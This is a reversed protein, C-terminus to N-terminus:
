IKDLIKEVGEGWMKTLNKPLFFIGGLMHSLKKCLPFIVYFTQLKNEDEDKEKKETKTEKKDIRFFKNVLIEEKYSCITAVRQM